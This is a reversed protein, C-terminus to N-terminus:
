IFVSLWVGITLSALVFIKFSVGLVSCLEISLLLCVRCVELVLLVVVYLLLSLM